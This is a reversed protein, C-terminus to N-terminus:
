FRGTIAVVGPFVCAIGVCQLMSLREKLFLIALVVTVIGFTSALVIAYEAGEFKGAANIALICFGDLAGMIAYIPLWTRAHAFSVGAVLTVPLAVALAWLRSYITVSLEPATQSAVQGMTFATAYGICALFSFLLAEGRTGSSANPDAEGPQTAAFRAVLTVGVLVLAVGLLEMPTPRSGNAITWIMVFVPYVAVLPAVLAVPGIAFARYGFMLAIAYIAGSGAVTWFEDQPHSVPEGMVLATASVTIAGFVLILFIAQASSPGRSGVLRILFDYIGWGLAAIAGLAIATM